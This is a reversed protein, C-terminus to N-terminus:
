EKFAQEVLLLGGLGLIIITYSLAAFLATQMTAYDGTRFIIVKRVMAIIGTYIILQVIRRTESQHIYAIVTKYVEVIILLLLGTDIIGIVIRPNTIRGSLITEVIRLGLDIVGIAFLLAFIAAAALEVVHVFEELHYDIRETVNGGSKPGAESASEATEDDM